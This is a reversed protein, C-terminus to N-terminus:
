SSQLVLAGSRLLPSGTTVVSTRADPIQRDGARGTVQRAAEIVHGIGHLRGESLSGGFTNLPLGGTPSINGESVFGPAEGRGCFGLAELWYYITPSFGDYLQATDMDSPALGCGSWLSDALKRGVTFTDALTYHLGTSLPALNQAYGVINAARDWSRESLDSRAIVVAACGQIPLDCDLLSLPDSIMRSSLYGDKTLPKDRFYAVPNRAANSRQQTVVEAMAERSAGHEHLYRAYALAHWQLISVLGYPATFQADGSRSPATYSGYNGTPNHLARWVLAVECAGANIAHVAEIVASAIMGTQLEAFWRLRPWPFRSLMFDIGAVDSGQVGASGSYPAKPYTALGDIDEPKLGADSVAAMCAQATLAGLSDQAGRQLSSHGVGVIAAGPQSSMTM